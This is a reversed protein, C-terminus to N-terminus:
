LYQWACLWQVVCILSSWVSCSKAASEETVTGRGPKPSSLVHNFAAVGHYSVCIGSSALRRAQVAGFGPRRGLPDSFTADAPWALWAQDEAAM